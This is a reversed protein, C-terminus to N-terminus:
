IGGIYGPYRLTTTSSAMINTVFSNFQHVTPSALCLRNVVIGNLATTDANLVLRKLTVILVLIYPQVVLDIFSNHWNSFVFYTQILKLSM